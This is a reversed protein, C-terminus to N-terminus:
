DKQAGDDGHDPAPHPRPRTVSPPDSAPFSEEISEDILEEEHAKRREEEFPDRKREQKSM